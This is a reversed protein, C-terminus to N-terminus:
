ASTSSKKATTKKARTPSKKTVKKVEKGEKGEVGKKGEKRGFLREAETMADVLFVIHRSVLLDEPNLYAAAVTKVHPINRASLRLGEHSQPTVFLIKRGIDVPLKQLLAAVTKTKIADPYTELGILAGNKAQFALCSRLAAHRMKQPMHKEFNKINRPGFIKGGGRLLPSRISGRRARGTHKQSYLKRTSGRVEGRSKVHAASQRRNSQQRVLAQHMLGENIPGSFLSEPLELSKIKAGAVSFVDINM